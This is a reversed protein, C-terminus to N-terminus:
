LTLNVALTTLQLYETNIEQMFYNVRTSWHEAEAYIPGIKWVTDAGRDYYKLRLAKSITQIGDEWSDFYIYGGGWGYANYTGEVYRTAFTSELGSIAPLLKWDIGYMDAYKVYAGAHPALTPNYRNFVNQLAVVRMDSDIKPKASVIQLQASSGSVNTSAYTQPSFISAVLLFAALM